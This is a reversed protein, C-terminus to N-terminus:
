SENEWFELIGVRDKSVPPIDAHHGYRERDVDKWLTAQTWHVSERIAADFSTNQGSLLVLEKKLTLATFIELTAGKSTKFTPLVAIGYCHTIVRIDRCLAFTWKDQNTDADTVESPIFTRYGRLMLEESASPFLAIQERTMGTIGGSIYVLRNQGETHARRARSLEDSRMLAESMADSENM